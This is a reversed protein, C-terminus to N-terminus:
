TNWYKIIFWYEYNDLKQVARRKDSNLQSYTTLYSLMYHIVRLVRGIAHILAARFSKSSNGNCPRPLIQGTGQGDNGLTSV